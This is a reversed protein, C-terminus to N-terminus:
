SISPNTAWRTSQLTPTGIRIRHLALSSTNSRTGPQPPPLFFLVVIVTSGREGSSVSSTM